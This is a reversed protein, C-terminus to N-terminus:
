SELHPSSIGSPLCLLCSHVACHRAVDKMIMVMPSQNSNDALVSFHCQNLGYVSCTNNSAYGTPWNLLRGHPYSIQFAFPRKVMVGSVTNKCSTLCCVHRSFLLFKSTSRDLILVGSIIYRDPQYFFFHNRLECFCFCYFFQNFWTSKLTITKCATFSVAKGIYFM